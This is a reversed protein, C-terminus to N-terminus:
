CRASQCRLFPAAAFCPHEQRRRLTWGPCYGRRKTKLSINNLVTTVTVSVVDRFEVDGEVRDLSIADASDVIDSKEDIIEFVREAAGLSRQITNYSNILRKVPNYVLVMATIFSFFEPATMTGQIVQSGGFWIVAAIGLSTIMEMVPSSLAVYKISRRLFAYYDRNNKEFRALEIPELGFAKVVKIGSFIQQILSSIDGIKGHSHGSLQKIKKGIKQCPLRDVPHSSIGYDGVALEPLFDGGVSLAGFGDRFLGTIVNAIGGANRQCREYGPVDSRRDPSQQFFAPQARNHQPVVYEQYGTRGITRSDPYFLRQCFPM